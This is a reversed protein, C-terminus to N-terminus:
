VVKLAVIKRHKSLRNKCPALYPNGAICLPYLVKAAVFFNVMQGNVIYLQNSSNVMKVM